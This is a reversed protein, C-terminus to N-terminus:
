YISDFITQHRHHNNTIQYGFVVGIMWLGPVQSNEHCFIRTYILFLDFPSPSPIIFFIIM